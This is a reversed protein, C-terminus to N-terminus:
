AMVGKRECAKWIFHTINKDKVGLWMLIWTMEAKKKLLKCTKWCSKLHFTPRTIVPKDFSFSRIIKDLILIKSYFKLNVLLDHNKEKNIKEKKEM